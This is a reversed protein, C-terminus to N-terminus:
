VAELSSILLNIAMAIGIDFGDYSKHKVPSHSPSLNKWRFPALNVPIVLKNPKLFGFTILCSIDRPSVTTLSNFVIASRFSFGEIKAMPIAVIFIKPFSKGISQFSTPDPLASKM